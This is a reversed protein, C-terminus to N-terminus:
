RGPVRVMGLPVGYFESFEEATTLGEARADEVDVLLGLAFDEAQREVSHSLLTHIRLWINNGDHLVHHGIAHGIAWRRWQPSLAPSIAAFGRYLAESAQGVERTVVTLGLDVALEEVDVRGTLGRDIRFKRGSEWAYSM